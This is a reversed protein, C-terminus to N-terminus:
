KEEPTTRRTLQDIVEAQEMGYDILRTTYNEANRIWNRVYLSTEPTMVLVTETCLSPDITPYEDAWGEAGFDARELCAEGVRQIFDPTFTVFFLGASTPDAREAESGCAARYDPDTAKEGGAWLCDVRIFDRLMADGFGIPDAKADISATLTAKFLENSLRGKETELAGVTADHEEKIAALEAQQKEKLKDVADRLAIEYRAEVRGDRESLAWKGTFYLATGLLSITVVSGIAVYKTVPSIM